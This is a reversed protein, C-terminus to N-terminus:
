NRSLCQSKTIHQQTNYLSSSHTEKTRRKGRRTKQHTRPEGTFGVHTSAWSFSISEWSFFAFFFILKQHLFFFFREGLREWSTFTGLCGKKNKKRPVDVTQVDQFIYLCRCFFSEHQQTTCNKIFIFLSVSTQLSFSPPLAKAPPFSPCPSLNSVREKREKRERRPPTERTEIREERIEIERKIKGISLFITRERKYKSLLQVRACCRDVLLDFLDILLQRFLPFLNLFDSGTRRLIRHLSSRQDDQLLFFHVFM